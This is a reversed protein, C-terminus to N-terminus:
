VRLKRIQLILISRTFSVHQIPDRREAPARPHRTIGCHSAQERSTRRSPLAPLTHRSSEPLVSRHEPCLSSGLDSIAERLLTFPDAWRLNSRVWGVPDM